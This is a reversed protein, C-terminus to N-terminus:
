LVVITGTGILSRRPRDIIWSLRLGTQTSKVRQTPCISFNSICACMFHTFWTCSVDFDYFLFQVRGAIPHIQVITRRRANFHLQLRSVHRHSIRSIHAYKKSVQIDITVRLWFLHRFHFLSKESHAFLMLMVSILIETYRNTREHSENSSYYILLISIAVSSHM